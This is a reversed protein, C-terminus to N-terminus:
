EGKKEMRSDIFAAIKDLTDPVMEVLRDATTNAPAAVPLMRVSSIPADLKEFIIEDNSQLNNAIIGSEDVVAIQKKEGGSYSIILAPAIMLAIILLPTLLTTIIFSKKRVRENFERGIIIGIKNKM